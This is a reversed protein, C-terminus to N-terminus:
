NHFLCEFGFECRCTDPRLFDLQQGSNSKPSAVHAQPASAASASPVCIQSGYCQSSYIDNYHGNYHDNYNDDYYDNQHGGCGDYYHNYNDSQTIITQSEQKIRTQKIEKKTRQRKNKFWNNVTELSLGTREVVGLKEDRNPQCNLSYLSEMILKAEEHIDYKRKGLRARIPCPNRGRIRYKNVPTLTKDPKNEAAIQYSANDWLKEFELCWGIPIDRKNLLDIYKQVSAYDANAYSLHLIGRQIDRHGSYGCVWDVDIGRLAHQLERVYYDGLGPLLEKTGRARPLQTANPLRNTM